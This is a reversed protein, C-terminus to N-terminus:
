YIVNNQSKVVITPNNNNNQHKYLTSFVSKNHKHKTTLSVYSIMPLNRSQSVIAEVYCYEEPGFFAIVGDCVMDTIARTAIVTDAKTDNWRMVLEVDPLLSPDANIQVCLLLM